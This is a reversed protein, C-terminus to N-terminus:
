LLYSISCVCMQKKYSDQRGGLPCILNHLFDGLYSHSRFSIHFGLNLHVIEPINLECEASRGDGVESLVVMLLQVWM